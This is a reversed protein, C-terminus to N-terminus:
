YGHKDYGFKNYGSKDYGHKNFGFRNYGFKNYGHKDYGFRNYGFRDYGHRDYGDRVYGLIGERGRPNKPKWNTNLQKKEKKGLNAIIAGILVIVFVIAAGTAPDM